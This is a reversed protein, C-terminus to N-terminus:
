MDVPPFNQTKGTKHSKFVNTKEVQQCCLNDRRTYSPSCFICYLIYIYIFKIYKMYLMYCLIYIYMYM